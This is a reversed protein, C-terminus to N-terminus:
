SDEGTTEHTPALTEHAPNDPLAPGDSAEFVGLRHFAEQLAWIAYIDYVAHGIMVTLLSGTESYIVGFLCGIAFILASNLPQAFHILAFGFAALLVPHPYPLYDGLLTQLGGRFLAEEGIGACLSLFLIPGLALKNRLFPYTDAQARVLKEMLRPSCYALAASAIILAGALALGYGIEWLAFTVFDADVERALTWLFWGVLTFASAQLGILALIKWLPMDMPASARPASTM